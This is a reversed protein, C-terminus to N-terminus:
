AVFAKVVYRNGVSSRETCNPFVSNVSIAHETARRESQKRGRHIDAFVTVEQKNNIEVQMAIHHRRCDRDYGGLWHQFNGADSSAGHRVARTQVRLSCFM